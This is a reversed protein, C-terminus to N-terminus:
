PISMTKLLLFLWFIEDVCNRLDDFHAFYLFPICFHLPTITYEMIIFSQSLPEKFAGTVKREATFVADSSEM